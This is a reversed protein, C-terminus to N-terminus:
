EIILKKTSTKQGNNLQIFYVGSNLGSVDLQSVKNEFEIQAHSVLKGLIDYIKARNSSGVISEQLKITVVTKAPNPFINFLNDTETNSIGMALPDFACLNFFGNGENNLQGFELKLRTGESGSVSIKEFGESDGNGDDHVIM